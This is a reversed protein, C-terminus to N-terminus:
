SIIKCKEIGFECLNQIVENKITDSYIAIVVYDFQFQEDKLIDINKVGYQEYQSYNKDVWAVVNCYNIRKIQDYYTMGQKGAGYLIIRSHAPIKDFPVLFEDNHVFDGYYEKRLEILHMYVYEIQKKVHPIFKTNDVM